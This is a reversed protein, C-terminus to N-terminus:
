KYKEVQKQENRVRETGLKNVALNSCMLCLHQFTTQITVYFDKVLSLNQVLFNPKLKLHHHVKSRKDWRIRLLIRAQVTCIPM